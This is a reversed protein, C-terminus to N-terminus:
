PVLRLAGLRAGQALVHEAIAQGDRRRDLRSPIAGRDAMQGLELHHPPGAPRARMRSLSITMQPLQPPPQPNSLTAPDICSSLDNTASVRDNMPMLGFRKTLTSIVSVHEFRTSIACGRRVFPGAVLGPIRFGLQRFEPRDDTTLPPSVHDFFGGHEDYILVFLLRNWQPSLALARFTTAILAQGLRVDHDPHDDNAGSGFFQPDIISFQPLTGSSAASFFQDIGALGNVKYYGGSAWPLDHFYNKNSIGAQDLVDFISRFGFVPVNGQSGLSTAGHLHLRNPWTPGMVSAFWRECLASADSLAYTIPLQERVYYGMVENQSAGAHARVFGDNAGNDWQSHSSNWDHPPDAPTYDDLRSVSVRTGDPAPNWENGTLGDVARGERLLLSGLYHDFTRNEMCMVVFTDIPALLQQPSFGTPDPCRQASADGPAAADGSHADPPAGDPSAAADPNGMLHDDDGCGLAAAGLAVGFGQLVQRRTCGDPQAM